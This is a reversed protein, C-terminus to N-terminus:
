AWVMPASPRVVTLASQCKSLIWVQSGYCLAEPLKILKLGSGRLLTQVVGIFTAANLDPLPYHNMTNEGGMKDRNM